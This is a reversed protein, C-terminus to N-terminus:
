FLDLVKFDLHTQGVSSTRTAWLCFLWNLTQLINWFWRIKSWTISGSVGMDGTAQTDLDLSPCCELVKKGKQRLSGSHNWIEDTHNAEESAGLSAEKLTNVIASNWFPLKIWRELPSNQNSFKEGRSGLKYHKRSSKNSKKISLM